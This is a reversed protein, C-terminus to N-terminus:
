LGSKEEYITSSGREVKYSISWPGGAEEDKWTETFTVIYVEDDIEEVSTERIANGVTIVGEKKPFKDIITGEGSTVFAVADEATFPPQEPTIFSLISWTVMTVSLPSLLFMLTPKDRKKRHLIWRDTCAYFLAAGVGFLALIPNVLLMILGFVGHLLVYFPINIRFWRNMIVEILASVLSGYILIIIGGFIGYFIVAILFEAGYDFTARTDHYIYVSALIMALTITTVFSAM